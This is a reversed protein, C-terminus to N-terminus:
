VDVRYPGASKEVAALILDLEDRFTAGILTREAHTDPGGHAHLARRRAEAVERAHAAEIAALDKNRFPHGRVVAEGAAWLAPRSEFVKGYDITKAVV